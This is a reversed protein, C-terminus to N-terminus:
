RWMLGDTFPSPERKAEPPKGLRLSEEQQSLPHLAKMDSLVKNLYKSDIVIRKSDEVDFPNIGNFFSTAYPTKTLDIDMGPAIGTKRPYIDINFVEKALSRAFSNSNAERNNDDPFLQYRYNRKGNELAVESARSFWVLMQTGTGSALLIQQKVSKNDELVATNGLKCDDLVPTARDGLPAYGMEKGNGDIQLTDLTAFAKGDPMLIEFNNHRFFVGTTYSRVTIKWGDQFIDGNDIVGQLKKQMFNRDTRDLGDGPVKDDGLKCHIGSAYDPLPPLATQTPSATSASVGAALMTSAFLHKLPGM